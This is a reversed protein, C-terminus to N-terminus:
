SKMWPVRDVAGVWRQAKTRDSYEGNFGLMRLLILEVYWEALRWADAYPFYKRKDPHVLKNRIATLAKPGDNWNQAQAESALKTLGPPIATPIGFSEILLRFQDDAPLKGFGERSLAKRDSVFVQWSLRELAAQLLIIGGDVGAAVGTSRLYWYLSSHFTAYREADKRLALVGPLIEALTHAHHTDFWTEVSGLKPHLCRTGWEKWLIQQNSGFGRVFAPAVWRGAAFSMTDHMANLLHEADESAFPANDSRRLTCSHNVYYLVSRLDELQRSERPPRIEIHWGDAEIDLHDDPCRTSSSAKAWFNPFNIIDFHVETLNDSRGVSIPEKTPSLGVVGDQASSILVEANLDALALHVSIKQEQGFAMWPDAGTVQFSLRPHPTIELVIACPLKQPVGKFVFDIQDADLHITTVPSTPM